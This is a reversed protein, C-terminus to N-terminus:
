PYYKCVLFHDGSGTSVESFDPQRKTTKGALHSFPSLESSPFVSARDPSRMALKVRGGDIIVRWHSRALPIKCGQNM